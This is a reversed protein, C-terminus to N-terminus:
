PFASSIEEPNEAISSPNAALLRERDHFGWMVAVSNMGANRATEIDLTSDGILTCEAPILGFAASIELAGTPDPKHHIGPRQGLVATFHIGPFVQSVMAVTFPHPKNSLVALPYGRNQLSELLAPIGDYPVTGKPWTMEYDDKFAQELALVLNEDAGPPVSRQILVRAGNGIFGRVDSLPHTPLGATTLAHNLSAAIGKLSDVLTGDLDFILGHKV